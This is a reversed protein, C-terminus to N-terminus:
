TFKNYLFLNFPCYPRSNFTLMGIQDMEDMRDIGDM